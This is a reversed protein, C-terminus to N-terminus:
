RMRTVIQSRSQCAAEREPCCPLIRSQRFDILREGDVESRRPGVASM